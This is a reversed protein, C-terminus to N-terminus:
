CGCFGTMRLKTLIMTPLLSVCVWGSFGASKKKRNQPRLFSWIEIMQVKQEALFRINTIVEEKKLAVVPVCIVPQGDGIRIGKIEFANQM